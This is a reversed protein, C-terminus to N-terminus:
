TGQMLVSVSGAGSGLASYLSLIGTGSLRQVRLEIACPNGALVTVGVSTFTPPIVYTHPENAVAHRHLAESIMTGNAYTRFAFLDGSVSNIGPWIGSIWPVWNRPQSPINLTKLSLEAAGVTPGGGVLSDYSINSIFGPGVKMGDVCGNGLDANSITGDMIMGSNITGAPISVSPVFGHVHDARVLKNSVGPSNAAGVAVPSAFFGAGPPRSGDNLLYQLHDDITTDFIHKMLTVITDADFVHEVADGVNHATAATDDFGRTIINITAPGAGSLSSCLCREENATGRAIAIVFPYLAGTPWGTISGSAQLSASGGTIAGALALAGAAGKVEKRVGSPM